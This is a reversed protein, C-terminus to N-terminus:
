FTEEIELVLSLCKQCIDPTCPSLTCGMALIHFETVGAPTLVGQNKEDYRVLIILMGDVDAKCTRIVSYGSFM